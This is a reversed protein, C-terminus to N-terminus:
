NGGEKRVPPLPVSSGDTTSTSPVHQANVAEQLSKIQAQAKQLEVVLRSNEIFLNGITAGLIQEQPPAQSAQALALTPLLTLLLTIRFM